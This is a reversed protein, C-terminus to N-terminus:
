SAHEATSKLNALGAEFDNGVMREVSFLLHFLKALFPAKGEMAWTVDTAGDAPTLRFTVLNQARMPKLMNLRMRVENAPTNGIIEISGEGSRSGRFNYVAGAGEVPGEYSGTMKPDKKAFPNWTNFGHLNNILGYIIEPPAKIRASRQLRCIDPQFYAVTLLGAIGALALLSVTEFM